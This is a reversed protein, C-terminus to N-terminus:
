LAKMLEEKFRETIKEIVEETLNKEIDQVNLDEDEERDYYCFKSVLDTMYEVMQEQKENMVLDKHNNLTELINEATTTWQTWNQEAKDMPYTFPLSKDVRKMGKHYIFALNRALVETKNRDCM